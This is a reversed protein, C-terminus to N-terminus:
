CCTCLLLDAWVPKRLLHICYQSFFWNVLSQEFVLDVISSLSEEHVFSYELEAIKLLLQM